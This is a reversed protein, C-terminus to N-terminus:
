QERRQLFKRTVNQLDMLSFPKYMVFDLPDEKPVDEASGTMLVVPTSPSLSKISSALSLGNTEPMDLDTLVLGFPDDQFLGLAERASGSSVAEFGLYELLKAVIDRLDKEDDVILIRDRTNPVGNM